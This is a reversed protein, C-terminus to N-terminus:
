YYMYHDDDDQVAYGGSRSGADTVNKYGIESFMGGRNGFAIYTRSGPPIIAYYAEDMNINWMEEPLRAHLGGNILPTVKLTDQLTNNGFVDEGNFAFATPRLPYRSAISQSKGCGIIHTGKLASQLEPPIPSVWGATHARHGTRFYGRVPSEALDAANDLVAFVDRVSAAADYFKFATFLLRGKEVYLGGLHDLGDPNGCETRDTLTSFDQVYEARPLDDLVLSDSMGPNTVEAVGRVYVHGSAFFSDRDADYAIRGESFGFHNNGGQGARPLRFAGVHQIDAKTLLWAGDQPGADATAAIPSGMGLCGMTCLATLLRKCM